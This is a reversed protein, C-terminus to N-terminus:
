IKMKRWNDVVVGMIRYNENPQFTPYAPNDSVLFLEGEKEKLRRITSDGFEDNVVVIDGPKPDLYVVFLVYDGHAFAPLMSEDTVRLAFCKKPAEPFSIYREINKQLVNPLDTSVRILVPIIPMAILRSDQEGERGIDGFIMNGSYDGQVQSVNKASGVHQTMTVKNKDPFPEGTGNALWNIDCGFFDAVKVITKRRPAKVKQNLWLSVMSRDVGIGNALDVQPIKKRDM